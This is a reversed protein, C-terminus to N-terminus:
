EIYYGTGSVNKIIDTPLKNRIRWVLTRVSNQTANDEDWIYQIIQDFSVVLGIHAVLLKIFANEKKTLRIKKNNYFTECVNLDFCYGDAFKINPQNHNNHYLLKELNLKEQKLASISAEQQKEHNYKYLAMQLTAHLSNPDFPKLIYGYPETKSADEIIHDDSHSTLYIFPLHYKERILNALEIGDASEQLAIDIIVIDPTYVKIKNIASLMNDTTAVVEYGNKRLSIELNLASVEDDEVILIRYKKM